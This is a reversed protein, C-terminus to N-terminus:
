STSNLTALAVYVGNNLTSGSDPLIEPLPEFINVTICLNSLTCSTPTFISCTTFIFIMCPFIKYNFHMDRTGSHLQTHLDVSIFKLSTATPFTYSFLITNFFM